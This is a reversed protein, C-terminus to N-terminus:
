GIGDVTEREAADLAYLRYIVLDILRATMARAWVMQESDAGSELEAGLRTYQEALFILVAEVVDPHPRAPALSDSPVREVLLGDVFALLGPFVLETLHGDGIREEDTVEEWSLENWYLDEAERCLFEVQEPPLPEAAAGAPEAPRDLADLVRARRIEVHAQALGAATAHKTM